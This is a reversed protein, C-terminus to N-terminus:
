NASEEFSPTGTLGETALMRQEISKPAPNYLALSGSVTLV